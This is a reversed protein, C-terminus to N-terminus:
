EHQYTNRRVQGYEILDELDKWQTFFYFLAVVPSTFLLWYLGLILLSLAFMSVLLYYLHWKKSRYIKYSIFTILTHVVQLLGLFCFSPFTWFTNDFFDFFIIGFLVALAAAAQLVLSLKNYTIHNKINM